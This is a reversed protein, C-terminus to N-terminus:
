LFAIWYSLIRARCDRCHRLSHRTSGAHVWFKSPGRQVQWVRMDRRRTKIPTLWGREALIKSQSTASEGFETTGILTNDVMILGSEFAAFQGVDYTCLVKLKVFPEATNERVDLLRM